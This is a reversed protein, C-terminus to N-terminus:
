DCEIKPRAGSRLPFDTCRDMEAEAKELIRMSTRIWKKGPEVGSLCDMM